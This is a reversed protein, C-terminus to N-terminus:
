QCGACSAIREHNSHVRSGPCPSMSDHRGWVIVNHTYSHTNTYNVTSVNVPPLCSCENTVPTSSWIKSKDRINVMHAISALCNSDCTKFIPEQPIFIKNRFNVNSIEVRRSCCCGNEFWSCLNKLLHWRKQFLFHRPVPPSSGLVNPNM